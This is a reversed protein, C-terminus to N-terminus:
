YELGIAEGPDIGIVIKDCVEKGLLTTKVDLIMSDLESEDHFVLVKKYNVKDKEEETTIVLKARTPVHEGPIISVFNIDNERLASVILYYVKGQVTAVAVKGKM